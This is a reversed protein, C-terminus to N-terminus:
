IKNNSVTFDSYASTHIHDYYNQNGIVPSAIVYLAFPSQKMSEEDNFVRSEDFNNDWYLKM